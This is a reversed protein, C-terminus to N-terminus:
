ERPKRDLPIRMSWQVSHIGSIANNMLGHQIRIKYLVSIDTSEKLLRKFVLANKLIKKAYRLQQEMDYIDKELSLLELDRYTVLGLSM